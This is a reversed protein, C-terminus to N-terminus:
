SGIWGPGIGNGDGQQDDLRFQGHDNTEILGFSELKVVSAKTRSDWKATHWRGAYKIAFKLLGMDEKTLTKRQTRM